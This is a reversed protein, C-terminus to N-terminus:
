VGSHLQMAAYTDCVATWQLRHMKLTDRILTSINMRLGGDLSRYLHDLVASGSTRLDRGEADVRLEGGPFYALVAAAFAKELPPLGTRDLAEALSRLRVRVPEYVRRLSRLEDAAARVADAFGPTGREWSEPVRSLVHDFLDLYDGHVAELEGMLREYRVFRTSDGRARLAATLDDTVHAAATVQEAGQVHLHVQDIRYAAVGGSAAVSATNAPPEAAQGDRPHRRHESEPPTM